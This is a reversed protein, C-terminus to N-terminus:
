SGDICLKWRRARRTRPSKGVYIRVRCRVHLKLVAGRCAINKRRNGRASRLMARLILGSALPSHVGHGVCIQVVHDVHRASRCQHGARRWCRLDALICSGWTARPDPGLKYKGLQGLSFGEFEEAPSACGQGCCSMGASIGAPGRRFCARTCDFTEVHRSM